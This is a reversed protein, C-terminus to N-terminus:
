KCGAQGIDAANGEDAQNITSLGDHIDLHLQSLEDYLSGVLDETAQRFAICGSILAAGPVANEATTIGSLRRVDGVTLSERTVKDAFDALLEPDVNLGIDAPAGPPVHDPM